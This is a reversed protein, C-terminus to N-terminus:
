MHCPDQMSALRPGPESGLTGRCRDVCLWLCGMEKSGMAVVVMTSIRGWCGYSHGLVGDWLSCSAGPTWLGLTTPCSPVLWMELKASAESGPQPLTVTRTREGDQAVGKFFSIRQELHGAGLGQQRRPPGKLLLGDTDTELVM